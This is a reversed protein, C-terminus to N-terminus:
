ATIGVGNFALEGDQLSLHDAQNKFQEIQSAYLQWDASGSDSQAAKLYSDIQKGAANAEATNAIKRYSNELGPDAAFIADIKDKDPTGDKAHVHGAGDVTFDISKSTDVGAAQLRQTIDASFAQEEDETSFLPIKALLSGASGSAVVSGATANEDGTLAALDFSERGDPTQTGHVAKAASSSATIGDIMAINGEAPFNTGTIKAAPSIRAPLFRGEPQRSQLVTRKANRLAICPGVCCAAAM